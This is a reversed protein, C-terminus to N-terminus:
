TKSVKAEEVAKNKEVELQKRLETMSRKKDALLSEKIERTM